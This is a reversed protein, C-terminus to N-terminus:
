DKSTRELAGRVTEVTIWEDAAVIVRDDARRSWYRLFGLRESNDTELLGFRKEADHWAFVAMPGDGVMKRQRTKTVERIVIDQLRDNNADDIGILVAPIRPGTEIDCAFVIENSSEGLSVYAYMGRAVKASHIPSFGILTELRNDGHADFVPWLHTLPQYGRWKEVVMEAQESERRFRGVVKYDSNLISIESRRLDSVTVIAFRTNFFGRVTAHLVTAPAGDIDSSVAGTRVAVRAVDNWLSPVRWCWDALARDVADVGVRFVGFTVWAAILVLRVRRAARGRPAVDIVGEPAVGSGAEHTSTTTM